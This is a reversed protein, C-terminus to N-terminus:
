SLQAKFLWAAMVSLQGSILFGFLIKGWWITGSLKESLTVITTILGPSDIGNGMIIQRLDDISNHISKIDDQMSRIHRKVSGENAGNASGLENDLRLAIGKQEITLNRLESVIEIVERRREVRDPM